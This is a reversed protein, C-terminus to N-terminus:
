KKSDTATIDGIFFVLEDDFQPFQNCRFLELRWFGSISFRLNASSFKKLSRRSSMTKDLKALVETREHHVARSSSSPMGLRNQTYEHLLIPAGSSGVDRVLSWRYLYGKQPRVWILKPPRV